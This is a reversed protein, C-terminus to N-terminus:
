YVPDMYFNTGAANTYVQTHQQNIPGSKSLGFDCVKAVWNHDLLINASKVDRHIVRHDEGRGTHLYDLGRAAGLCIKLRHEWTLFRSKNKNTLHCDLSGNSAYEYVIIKENGYLSGNVAYKSVITAEDNKYCYGIFPTINEHHFSSILFIELMLMSYEFTNFTDVLKRRYISVHPKSSIKRNFDETAIVRRMEELPIEFKETIRRSYTFASGYTQIDFAKEITKIIEDMRPRKKVDFSICKYALTTFIQLSRSDFNMSIIPDVLKYPEDDSCGRVLIMLQRLNKDRFQTENSGTGHLIVFMLVGFSYVDSETNLLNTEKYIPDTHHERFLKEPCHHHQYPQNLPVLKSHKFGCLKIEELIWPNLLINEWKLDGHIVRGHEGVGSHLYNLVKAVMICIKLRDEWGLVDDKSALRDYLSLTRKNLNGIVDEVPHNKSLKINVIKEVELTEDEIDNELNKNKIIKIAEKEHLDDDVLPSTKSPPPTEDFAVNLLEEIKMTYKYLIIYAKSSYDDVIVLTYLNGGYCRIALPGFLDMHIRELCRTTSVINKAKHCAHVKNEESSVQNMLCTEDKAKEDDEEGSDRGRRKFFKKFRRVAMTYEEDKSGSILSEEDSSEKLNKILENLSLSTLDKSEEIATVKERWKPRLARLFKKIYNKSSYSPYEVTYRKLTWPKLFFLEPNSLDNLKIIITSNFIGIDDDDDIEIIHIDLAKEITKIIEDMKPREKMDFTICKYAITTFFRAGWCGFSPLEASEGGTHLDRPSGGMKFIKSNRKFYELASGIVKIRRPPVSSSDVSSLERFAPLVACSEDFWVVFLLVLRVLKLYNGPQVVSIYGREDTVLCRIM